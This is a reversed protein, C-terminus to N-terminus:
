GPLTLRYIDSEERRCNFRGFYLDGDVIDGPDIDVQNPLDKLVHSEADGRHHSMLKVNLGCGNGSQGYYVTGDADIVPFYTWKRAATPVVDARGNSIRYRVIECAKACRQYVVWNGNVMGPWVYSGKALLSSEGTALDYLVAKTPPAAGQAGRGFLLYDGSITAKMENASTNIGDPTDVVTDTTVDYVVIDAPGTGEWQSFLVVDGLYANGLEMSPWDAYTGDANVQHFPDTDTGLMVVSDDVGGVVRQNFALYGGEFTAWDESLDPTTYVPQENPEGSSTSPIVLIAAAVISLVTVSRRIRPTLSRPM